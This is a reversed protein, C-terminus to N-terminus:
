QRGEGVMKLMVIAAKVDADGYERHLGKLLDPDAGKMKELKRAISRIRKAKDATSEALETKM